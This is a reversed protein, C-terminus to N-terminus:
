KDHFTSGASRRGIGLCPIPISTGFYDEHSYILIAYPASMGRHHTEKPAISIFLCINIQADTRRPSGDAPCASKVARMCALCPADSLPSRCRRGRICPADSLPSRPPTLTPHNGKPVRRLHRATVKPVAVCTISRRHAGCSPAESPCMRYIHIQAM